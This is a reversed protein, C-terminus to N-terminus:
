KSHVKKCQYIQAIKNNLFKLKTIMKNFIRIQKIIHFRIVCITAMQVSLKCIQNSQTKIIVKLCCNDIVLHIQKMNSIIYIVLTKLESTISKSSILIKQQRFVKNPKLIQGKIKQLKLIQNDKSNIKKLSYNKKNCVLQIKVM